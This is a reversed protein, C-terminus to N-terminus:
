KLHQLFVELNQNESLALRRRLRARGKKVTSESVGLMAAIEQRNLNIKLLLALREEANTIDPFATRLRRLYRPYSREFLQKFANWDQDTLIRFNYLETGSHVENEEEPQEPTSFHTRRESDAQELELLRTNKALMMQTFERLQARSGALQRQSSKAQARWRLLWFGIVAVSCIWFAWGLMRRATQENEKARLLLIEQEQERTKFQVELNQLSKIKDEKFISDKIFVAQRYLKLATAPDGSTEAIQSLRELTRAKVHVQGSSDAATLAAQLYQRAQPMNGINRHCNGINLYMGPLQTLVGSMRMLMLATDLLPLAERWKGADSYTFAMQNYAACREITSGYQRVIDFGKRATEMQKEPMKARSYFASLTAYTRGIRSSDGSRIFAELIPTGMAIAKPFEGLREFVCAMDLRSDYYAFSDAAVAAVDMSQQFFTLAAEYNGASLSSDGLHNLRRARLSDTEVGPTEGAANRLSSQNPDTCSQEYICLLFVGLLVPHKILITASNKV